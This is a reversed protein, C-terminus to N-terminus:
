KILTLKRTQTFEGSTIRYIYIGSSLSYANFQVQHMGTARQENVLIVVRQGIMYFVELRVASAEPLGFEIM